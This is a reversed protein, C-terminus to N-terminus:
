EGAPVRLTGAGDRGSESRASAFTAFVAKRWARLTGNDQGAIQPLPM